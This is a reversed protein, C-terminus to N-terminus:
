VEGVRSIEGTDPNIKLKRSESAMETAEAEASTETEVKAKCDDDKVVSEPFKDVWDLADSPGIMGNAAINRICNFEWVLAKAFRNILFGDKEDIAVSKNLMSRLSNLERISVEITVSPSGEVKDLKVIKM